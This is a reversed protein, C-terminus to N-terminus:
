MKYPILLRPLKRPNHANVNKKSGPKERSYIAVNQFLDNKSKAITELIMQKCTYRLPTAEAVTLFSVIGVLKLSLLDVRKIQNKSENVGTIRNRLIVELIEVSIADIGSKHIIGSDIYKNEKRGLKQDLLSLATTGEDLASKAKGWKLRINHVKPFIM